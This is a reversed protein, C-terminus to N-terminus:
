QGVLEMAAVLAQHEAETPVQKVRAEISNTAKQLEDELWKSWHIGAQLFEVDKLSDHRSLKLRSELVFRQYRLRALLNQFGAHGALSAITSAAEESLEALPRPKEVEVIRIEPAVKFWNM